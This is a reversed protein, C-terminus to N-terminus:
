HLNLNNMVSMSGSFEQGGLTFSFRKEKEDYSVGDCMGGMASTPTPSWGKANCILVDPSSLLSCLITGLSLFLCLQMVASISQM